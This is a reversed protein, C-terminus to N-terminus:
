LYYQVVSKNINTNPKNNQINMDTSASTNESDENQHVPASSKKPKMKNKVFKINDTLDLGSSASNFSNPNNANTSTWFLQM